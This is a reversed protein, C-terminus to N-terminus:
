EEFPNEKKRDSSFFEPIVQLAGASGSLVQGSTFPFTGAKTNDTVSQYSATLALAYGHAGSDSSEDGGGGPDDADYTTGSIPSIDFTVYEVCEDQVTYLTQTPSSPVAVGFVTTAGVQINSGITEQADSKLNSTNAKGMLKKFAFDLSTTTTKGAM